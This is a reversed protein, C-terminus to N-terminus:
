KTLLTTLQEKLQTVPKTLTNKLFYKTLIPKIKKLDPSVLPNTITGSIVIPFGGGLLQQIHAVKPQTLFITTLLHSELLYSNLDFKSNGKIQVNKAQLYIADSFLSANELRYKLTMLAFPTTGKFFEPNEFSSLEEAPNNNANKGALLNDIKKSTVDIVKDLNITKISGDRMSLNGSGMSSEQWTSKQFNTRTHLSLDLKGELLKKHFIDYTLKASNLNSATLNIDLIQPSLEYRLNGISEGQYLNVTLPSLNLVSNKFTTNASIKSIKFNALHAKQIILQGNALISKLTFSPNALATLLNSSGKFQIQAGSLPINVNSYGINSKFQFPFSQQQVNIKETGIQVDNLTILHTDKTFIIQGHSLLLREIIFQTDVQKKQSINQYNKEILFPTKSNANIKLIFGDVKINSFVFKGRLLPMVKLNLFLSDLKLSINEKDSADGVQINDVKIGPQPFIHWSVQGEIHAPKSTIATLNTIIYQKISDPNISRFLIWLVIIATTTVLIIPPLLKRSFKM